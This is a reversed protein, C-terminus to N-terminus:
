EINRTDLVIKKRNFLKSFQLGIVRHQVAPGGDTNIINALGLTYQLAVSFGSKSEYGFLGLINASYRGYDAFGFKIKRDVTPKNVRNFKENGFIQFDLSPGGKIFFHSPNTGLDIQILAAVEINHFRTDNDTAASDPPISVHDFEAKYGKMSYFIEPVFYINGEFPVKMLAGFQFGYKYTTKQKYGTIHYSATSAQPGGLIGFQPQAKSVSFLFCTLLITLLIKM